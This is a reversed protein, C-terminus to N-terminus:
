RVRLTWGVWGQDLRTRRGAIRATAQAGATGVCAQALIVHSVEDAADSGGEVARVYAKGRSVDNCTECARARHQHLRLQHGTDLGAPNTRLFTLVMGRPMFVATDTGLRAAVALLCATCQEM